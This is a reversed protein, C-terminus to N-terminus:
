ETRVSVLISDKQYSKAVVLILSNQMLAGNSKETHISYSLELMKAKSQLDVAHYNIQDESIDGIVAVVFEKEFDIPTPKGDEGMVTAMGFIRQFSDPHNIIPNMLKGSFTNNVFYGKAIKFPIPASVQKQDACAYLLGFM